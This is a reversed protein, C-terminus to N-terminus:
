FNALSRSRIAIESEAISKVPTSALKPNPNPIDAEISVRVKGVAARQCVTLAAPSGGPVLEVPPNGGNFYRFGLGSYPIHDVVVVPTTGPIDTRRLEGSVLEYTVDEGAGVIVGNADLDQRIRVKTPTAEIVAEQVTPCAPDVTLTLALDTPNYGAMRVERSMLDIVTRTVTQSQSYTSQTAFAKLQAQQVTFVTGVTMLSLATGALLEATSFGRTTARDSRRGMPTRRM